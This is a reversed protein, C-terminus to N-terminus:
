QCGEWLFREYQKRLRIRRGTEDVPFATALYLRGEGRIALAVMYSFDALAHVIRRGDPRRERWV